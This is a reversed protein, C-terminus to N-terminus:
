LEVAERTEAWIIPHLKECNSSFETEWEASQLFSSTPKARLKRGTSTRWWRRSSPPFAADLILKHCSVEPGEYVLIVDTRTMKNYVNQFVRLKRKKPAAVPQKDAIKTM